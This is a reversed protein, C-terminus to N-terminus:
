SRNAAEQAIAAQGLGRERTPVRFVIYVAGIAVLTAVTAAIAVRDRTLVISLTGFALMMGIAFAKARRSMGLGARYDRVARGIHPLDLVWQEFRPSSRAFCAAAIIFFVTTPLGPVVVGISGVAVAVWGVAFWMWWV